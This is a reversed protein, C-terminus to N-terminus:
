DKESPMPAPRYQRGFILSSPNQELVVVLGRLEEVTARVSRLTLDLEVVVASLQTATTAVADAANGVREAGDRVSSATGPLDAAVVNQTLMAASEDIRRVMKRLDGQEHTLQDITTSTTSVAKSVEDLVAKASKSVGQTDLEVIRQDLNAIAMTTRDTVGSSNLNGLFQNLGSIIGGVNPGHIRVSDLAEQVALEVSKLTSPVSPIVLAVSSPARVDTPLEIMEAPPADPLDIEVFKLGTLGSSGLRAVLHTAVLGGGAGGLIGFNVLFERSVLCRVELHKRDSAVGIAAVEGVKFGRYKVESGDSLGQVSEDFYVATEVTDRADLGTSGIWFLFGVTAASLGVMFLGVKFHHREAAM